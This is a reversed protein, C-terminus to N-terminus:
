WLFRVRNITMPGVVNTLSAKSVGTPSMMVGKVLSTPTAITLAVPNPLASNPRPIGSPVVIGTAKTVVPPKIHPRLLLESTVIPKPPLPPVVACNPPVKVPIGPRTPLSTEAETMRMRKEVPEGNDGESELSAVVQTRFSSFHM